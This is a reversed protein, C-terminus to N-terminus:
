PRCWRCWGGPHSVCPLTLVSIMWCPVWEEVGLAGRHSQKSADCRAFTISCCVPVTRPPLEEFGNLKLTEVM